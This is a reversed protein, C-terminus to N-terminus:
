NRVAKPKLAIPDDEFTTRIMACACLRNGRSTLYDAMNHGVGLDDANGVSYTLMQTVRTSWVGKILRM